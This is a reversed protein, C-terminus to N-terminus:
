VAVELLRRLAVLDGHARVAGSAIAADLGAPAFLLANLTRPDADLSADPTAMDKEEIEIQGEPSSITWVREGLQVRYTERPPDPHSRACGRLFLLVSTATLSADAPPPEAAGWAGLADLVPELEGGRDTLEYVSSAAPPPLTRRRVLGRGELERLRDTLMNSSAGPLARRLDSFRQPGLLLERVVLLAWREGTADLARAIPCADRYSRSTSM